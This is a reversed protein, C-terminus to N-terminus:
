SLQCLLPSKIRPNRTRDGRPGGRTVQDKTKDPALGSDIQPDRPAATPGPPGLRTELQMPQEKPQSRPVLRAAAEAARRAVEPLVSAYTDATITITSHGLMESVTKLDAGGALALTAAGHRLDHLRVPPLGADRALHEFHRTVYEPHLASGDERTFVLGTEVWAPGWARREADQRDKHALLATVSDDDLAVRRASDAKPPGTETRYGLQVIQENVMLTRGTIDVEAWPLGVAEGRRLGRFTILHYLAYLRDSAAHDLFAGTQEPTWVAVKPRKHTRRWETVREDTWLAAKPRKGTALEVHAAPNFPILRRKAASNLASMLTAHVRRISADSLPRAGGAAHRAALMRALMPSATTATGLDRLATYLDEVDEVRLQSLRLHGIGPTLYLHFHIEYSRRTTQRLGSKAALWRDLYVTITERGPEVRTRKNVRDLLDVLAQQAERRTVFGGKRARRRQGDPEPPLEVQYYWSGHDFKKLNPCEADLRGGSFDACGCRKFVSGTM